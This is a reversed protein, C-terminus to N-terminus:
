ESLFTTSAPPFGVPRSDDCWTVSFFDHANDCSRSSRERHRSSRELTWVSWTRGAVKSQTHQEGNTWNLGYTGYRKRVLDVHCNSQDGTEWSACGALNPGYVRAHVASTTTRRPPQRYPSATTLASCTHEDDMWWAHRCVAHRLQTRTSIGQSWKRIPNAYIRIRDFLRLPTTPNMWLDSYRQVVYLVILKCEKESFILLRYSIKDM